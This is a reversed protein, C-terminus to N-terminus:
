SGLLLQIFGTDSVCVEASMGKAVCARTVTCPIETPAGWQRKNPFFGMREWQLFTLKTRMEM